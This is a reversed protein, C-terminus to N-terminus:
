PRFITASAFYHAPAACVQASSASVVMSFRMDARDGVVGAKREDGRISIGTYGAQALSQGIQKAVGDASTGDICWTGHVQMRDSTQKLGIIQNGALVPLAATADEITVPKSPTPEGAGAASAAPAPASESPLSPKPTPTPQSPAHPTPAPSQQQKDKCAGFAALALVAAITRM